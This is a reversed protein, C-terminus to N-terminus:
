MSQNISLVACDGCTLRESNVLWLGVFSSQESVLYSRFLAVYVLCSGFMSMNFLVAGFNEVTKYLILLLALSLLSGTLLAVCPTQNPGHLSALAKPLLGSAGMNYLQRSYAYMFGYTTGVIGPVMLLATVQHTLGLQNM